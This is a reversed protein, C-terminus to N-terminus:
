WISQGGDVVIEAGTVFSADDSMLFAVVSAIEEPKALRGLPVYRKVTEQISLDGSKMSTTLSRAMETDVLGPHISNVRINYKAYNYADVKTMHRIAAKSAQYAVGSRPSALIGNLSSINVISGSNGKMMYPVAHKTCFLTGKVNVSLVADFDKEEVEHTQKKVGVIGADNVLGWPGGSEQHLRSFTEIVDGEKAVNMLYFKGKGGHMRVGKETENGEAELVDCIAVAAGRKALSLSIARGIGRSGGTVVIVRNQLSSM